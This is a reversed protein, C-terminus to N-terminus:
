IGAKALEAEVAKQRREHSIPQPRSEAGSLAECFRQAAERSTCRSGGVQISELVVGKCGATCWRWVTSTNVHKGGRRKPFFERAADALTAVQERSIDIM